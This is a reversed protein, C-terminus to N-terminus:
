PPGFVRKVFGPSGGETAKKDFAQALQRILDRQPETLKTPIDVIVRVLEDGQGRAGLHPVGRERLRFVAGSQTGPPLKMTVAGDLAPVQIDCGLAAQAFTLHHECLIDDNQREFVPDAKVHVVVYLDGAQGGRDGVQGAGSIRLATGERVGPPIRITLEAERRVRGAGRCAPCPKEIVSGEGRCRRCTQSLTFFGQTFKVTGGGRCDPCTKPSTGSRSGSGDCAECAEFRNIKLPVTSGTAVERLTVETEAQVDEGHKTGRGRERTRTGFVDGFGFVDGLIDGLNPIGSFDQFGEFGPQGGSAGGGVGAHGFQDYAQRKTTDSLVEYAENIEKFQEEATKNGANKDPHYKVALRRFASKITDPSAERPVGLIEYYDRKVM